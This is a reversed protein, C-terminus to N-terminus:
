ARTGLLHGLWNYGACGIVMIAIALVLGCLCAQGLVVWEDRSPAKM